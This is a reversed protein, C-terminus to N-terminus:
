HPRSIRECTPGTSVPLIERQRGDRKSELAEPKPRTRLAIDIAEKLTLTQTNVIRVEDGATPANLNNKLKVDDKSSSSQAIAMVPPQAERKRLSPLNEVLSDPPLQPQILETKSVTAVNTAMSVEQFSLSRRPYTNASASEISGIGSLSLALVACIAQFKIIPGDLRTKVKGLRHNLTHILKILTLM